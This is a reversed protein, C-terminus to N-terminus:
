PNRTGHGSHRLQASDSDEGGENHNGGPMEAHARGGSGNIGDMAEASPCGTIGPFLSAFQLSVPRTPHLPLGSSTWGRWRPKGDDASTGSHCWRYGCKMQLRSHLSGKQLGLVSCDPHSCLNGLRRGVGSSPLM